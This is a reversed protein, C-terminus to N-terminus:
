ALAVGLQIVAGLQVIAIGRLETVLEGCQMGRVSLDVDEAAAAAGVSAVDRRDGSGVSVASRPGRTRQFGLLTHMPRTRRMLGNSKVIDKAHIRPLLQQRLLSEAAGAREAMPPAMM